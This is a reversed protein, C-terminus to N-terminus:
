CQPKGIERILYLVAEKMRCKESMYTAIPCNECVCGRNHCYIAGESWRRYKPVLVNLRM